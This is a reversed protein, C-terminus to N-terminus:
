RKVFKSCARAQSPLGEEGDVMFVLQKHKATPSKPISQLASLAVPRALVGSGEELEESFTRLPESKMRLNTARGGALGESDKPQPQSLEPSQASDGPAQKPEPTTPSREDCQFSPSSTTREPNSPEAGGQVQM